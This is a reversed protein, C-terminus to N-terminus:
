RRQASMTPVMVRKEYSGNAPAQASRVCATVIRKPFRNGVATWIVNCQEYEEETRAHRNSCGLWPRPLRATRSRWNYQRLQRGAASSNFEEWAERGRANLRKIHINDNANAKRSKEVMHRIVCPCGGNQQAPERCCNSRADSGVRLEQGIASSMGDSSMRAVPM